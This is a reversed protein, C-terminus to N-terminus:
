LLIFNNASFDIITCYIRFFMFLITFNVLFFQIVYAPVAGKKQYTTSM